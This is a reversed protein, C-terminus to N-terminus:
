GLLKTLNGLGGLGLPLEDGKEKIWFLNQRKGKKRGRKGTVWGLREGRERERM